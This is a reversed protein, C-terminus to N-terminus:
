VNLTLSLPSYLNKYDKKLGTTKSKVKSAHYVILGQPIDQQSYGFIKIIIAIIICMVLFIMNLIM